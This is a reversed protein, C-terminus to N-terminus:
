NFKAHKITKAIKLRVIELLDTRLENPIRQKIGNVFISKTSYDITVKTANISTDAKTMIIDKNKLIGEPCWEQKKYLTLGILGAVLNKQTM